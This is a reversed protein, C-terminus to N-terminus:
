RRRDAGAGRPKRQRAVGASGGCPSFAAQSTSPL